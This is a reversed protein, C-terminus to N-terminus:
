RGGSWGGAWLGRRDHRAVTREHLYAGGPVTVADAWGEIVQARGLDERGVLCVAELGGAVPASVDCRVKRGQARHSLADRSRLGCRYAGGRGDPCIEDVGPAVAGALLVPTGDVILTDGSVVTAHGVVSSPVAGVTVTETSPLAVTRTPADGAPAAVVAGSRTQGIQSVGVQVNTTQESGDDVQSFVRSPDVSFTPGPLEQAHVRPVSLFPFLLPLILAGALAPRVSARM